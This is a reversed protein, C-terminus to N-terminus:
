LAERGAETIAYSDGSLEIFGREHLGRFTMARVVKAPQKGSKHLYRDADPSYYVREGNAIAALLQKQTDTMKRKLVTM